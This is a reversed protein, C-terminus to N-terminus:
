SGRQRKKKKSEMVKQKVNHSSFHVCLIDGRANSSSTTSKHKAKNIHKVYCKQIDETSVSINLAKDFIENVRERANLSNLDPVGVIEIANELQKQERWNM